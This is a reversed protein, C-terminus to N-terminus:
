KFKIKVESKSKQRPIKEVKKLSDEQQYSM